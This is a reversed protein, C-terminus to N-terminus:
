PFCSIKQITGLPAMQTTHKNKYFFQAIMIICEIQVDILHCNIAAPWTSDWSVAGLTFKLMVSIVRTVRTVRVYNDFEGFSDVRGPSNSQSRPLTIEGTEEAM